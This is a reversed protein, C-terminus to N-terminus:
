HWISDHCFQHTVNTTLYQLLPIITKHQLNSRLCPAKAYVTYLYMYMFIIEFESIIVNDKHEPKGSWLLLLEGFSQGQFGVRHKNVLHKGQDVPIAVTVYGEPLQQVCYKEKGFTLTFRDLWFISLDSAGAHFDCLTHVTATKFVTQCLLM